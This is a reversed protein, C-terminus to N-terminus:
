FLDQSISILIQWIPSPRSRGARILASIIHQQKYNLLTVEFGINMIPTVMDQIHTTYDFVLIYMALLANAKHTHHTHDHHHAFRGIEQTLTELINHNKNHFIMKISTHKNYIIFDSHLFKGDFTQIITLFKQQQNQEYVENCMIHNIHTAHQTHNTRTALLCQMDDIYRTIFIKIDKSVLQQPLQYHHEDFAVYLIALPPSLPDGMILGNIQRLIHHGLTFYANNISFVILDKLDSLKFYAYKSSYSKKFLPPYQKPDVAPKAISIYNTHHTKSFRDLLFDVRPLLNIQQVSPFFNKIDYTFKQIHLNNTKATECFDNVKGKVPAFCLFANYIPISSYLM